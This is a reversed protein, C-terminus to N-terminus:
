KLKLGRHLLTISNEILKQKNRVSFFFFRHTIAVQLRRTTSPCSVATSDNTLNQDGATNYVGM